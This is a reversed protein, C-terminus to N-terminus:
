IRYECNLIMTSILFGDTNASRAQEELQTQAEEKDNHWMNTVPSSKSQFWGVLLIGADAGGSGMYKDILQNQMANTATSNWSGKVEICLTIKQDNESFATIWIDTRSGPTGFRGRNLQVERNIVIRSDVLREKLFSALHDSFCEEDKHRISNDICNWLDEVRPTEKGTLYIQYDGLVDLVTTMLDTPTNVIVGQKSRDIIKKIEKVTYQPNLIKLEKKRTRKIVDDIWQEEPFHRSINQLAAVSGIGPYDVIINLIEGIFEYIDDLRTPSYCGEHHPMEAYPYNSHLWIYLSTLQSLTANGFIMSVYESYRNIPVIDCIWEKGWSPNQQIHEIFMDLKEPFFAFVLVSIRNGWITIDQGLPLVETVIYNKVTQPSFKNIQELLSYKAHDDLNWTLSIKAIQQCFDDSMCYGYKDLNELSGHTLDEEIKKLMTESFVSPHIRFVQELLPTLIDKGDCQAYCIIELLYKKWVDESFSEFEEKLETYVMYFARPPLPYLRNYEHKPVEEIAELYKKASVALMKQEESSFEKWVKSERYDILDFDTEYQFFNIISAFCLHAKNQELKEKIVCINRHYAEQKHRQKEAVEEKHAIEKLLNEQNYFDRRKIIEDATEELIEPYIEYANNWQCSYEPLPIEYRLNKLCVCWKRKQTALTSCHIQSFVFDLDNIGLVSFHYGALEDGTTKNMTVIYEALKRRKKQDAAFLERSYCLEAPTGHISDDSFPFSSVDSFAIIGDALLSLSKDGFFKIWCLTFIQQKLNVISQKGLSLPLIDNVAWKLAELAQSESLKLLSQPLERHLWMHYNDISHRETTILHPGIDSMSIMDPWTMQFVCTKLNIDCQEHSLIKKCTLKDHTSALEKLAYGIRQRVSLDENPNCFVEVLIDNLDQIKCERIINIAVEKQEESYDKTLVDKLFPVIDPSKLKSFNNILAMNHIAWYDMEAARQIIAACLEQSGIVKIIEEFSLLLEPQMSLVLNRWNEDFFALWSAVGEWQPYVSVKDPSILIREWHTHAIYKIFGVACLYDTYYIHSFRFNDTDIPLFIGHLLLSNFTEIDEDTDFIQSFDINADDICAATDTIRRVLYKNSLKLVLAIKIASDFFKEAPIVKDGAVLTRTESANEACLQRISHEWLTQYSIQILGNKKYAELLLKCGLPKACVPSLGINIVKQIFDEGDVGNQNAIKLVMDQALPLLSFVPLDLKKELVEIPKINRTAIIIKKNIILQSLKTSLPLILDRAEDLSDIFIYKKTDPILSLKQFLEPFVMQYLPLQIFEVNETGLCKEIAEMLFTKGMGGEAVIIAGHPLRLIDPVNKLNSNCNNKIFFGNHDLLEESFFRCYFEDTHVLAKDVHERAIFYREPFEYHPLLDEMITLKEPM